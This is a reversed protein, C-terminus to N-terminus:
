YVFFNKNWIIKYLIICNINEDMVVFWLDYLMIYSLISNFVMVLLVVFIRDNIVYIM